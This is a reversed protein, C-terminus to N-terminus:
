HFLLQSKNIILFENFQCPSSSHSLNYYARFLQHYELWPLCLQGGRYQFTFVFTFIFLFISLFVFCKYMNEHLSAQDGQPRPLLIKSNFIFVFFYVHIKPSSFFSFFSNRWDQSKLCLLSHMASGNLTRPHPFFCNGWWNILVDTSLTYINKSLYLCLYISLVFGRSEIWEDLSLAFIKAYHCHM